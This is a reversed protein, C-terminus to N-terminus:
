LSHTLTHTHATINCNCKRNNGTHLHVTHTHTSVSRCGRLHLQRRHKLPGVGQLRADQQEPVQLEQESRSTAGLLIASDLRREALQEM